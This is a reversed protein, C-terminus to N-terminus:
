VMTSGWTILIETPLKKEKNSKQMEREREGVTERWAKENTSMEPEFITTTTLSNKKPFKWIFILTICILYYVICM